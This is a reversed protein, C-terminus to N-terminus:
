STCQTKRHAPLPPSYAWVLKLETDGTNIIEHRTGRAAFIATGASVEYEEEGGNIVLKGKGSIIYMAEEENEHVHEPIRSGVATVNVGMSINQAGTTIESILTKSVRPPTRVQGEVESERVIRTAM